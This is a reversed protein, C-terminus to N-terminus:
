KKGSVSKAATRTVPKYGNLTGTVKVNLQAGVDAQTVKYTSGNAGSISTGNRTWQYTFTVRPQWNGTAISLSSGKKGTGSITPNPSASLTGLAVATTYTSCRTTLVGAADSVCVQMAKNLENASLTFTDKNYTSGAFDVKTCSNCTKTNWTYVLSTGEPWDGSDASLTTGVRVAGSIQPPEPAPQVTMALSTQSATVYGTKTGTVVVTLSKSLDEAKLTYSQNTAGSITSGNRRWVYTNTVSDDWTGPNATVMSGVQNTGNITPVPTLTQVGPAVNQYENSSYIEPTQRSVTYTMVISIKKNLDSPTLTYTKGHGAGPIEVGDRKWLISFTGWSEYMRLYDDYTMDRYVLSKFNHIGFTLTQGVQMIGSIDPKRSSGTLSEGATAALTYIKDETFTWTVTKDGNSLTGNTTTVPTAFTFSFHADDGAAILGKLQDSAFDFSGELNLTTGVRNLSFGHGEKTNANFDSLPTQNFTYKKGIYGGECVDEISLNTMTSPFISYDAPTCPTNASTQSNPDPNVELTGFYATGSVKDTSDITLDATDKICGSLSVSLAIAGVFSIVKKSNM